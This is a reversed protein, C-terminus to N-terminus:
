LFTGSIPGTRLRIKAATVAPVAIVSQVARLQPAFFDKFNKEMAASLLFHGNERHKKTNVVQSV